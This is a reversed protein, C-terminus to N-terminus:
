SSGQNCAVRFGICALASREDAAFRKANRLNAAESLVFAGGKIVRDDTREADAALSWRYHDRCWEFVNGTTAYLGFANAQGWDVPATERCGCVYADPSFARGLSWALQEPGGAARQWQLESPLDCTVGSESAVWACFRRAGRHSVYVVPHNERGPRCAVRGGDLRLDSLPSRVDACSRVEAESALQNLFQVYARNSVVHRAIAFADVDRELAPQEDPDGEPDGFVIRGAPIEIFDIEPQM